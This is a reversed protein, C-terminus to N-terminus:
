PLNILTDKRICRLDSYRGMPVLAGGRAECAKLMAEYRENMHNSCDKVFAVAAFIVVAVIGYAIARNM